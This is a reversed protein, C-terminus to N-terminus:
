SQIGYHEIEPTLITPTVDVDNSGTILKCVNDIDFRLCMPEPFGRKCKGLQHMFCRCDPNSDIATINIYHKIRCEASFPGHISITQTGIAQALHMILSDTVIVKTCSHILKCLEIYTKHTDCSWEFKSLQPSNAKDKDTGILIPNFGIRKIKICLSNVINSNLNRIPDNAFPHIGILKPNVDVNSFIDKITPRCCSSDINLIGLTEAYVEYVNRAQNGINGEIAQAVQFYYDFSDFKIKDIPYQIIEDIHPILELIGHQEKICAFGITCTPYKEKISRIIPSLFLLDGGGIARIFLIRKNSLDIDLKYNDVNISTAELGIEKAWNDNIIYEINAKLLRSGQGYDCHCESTPKIISLM